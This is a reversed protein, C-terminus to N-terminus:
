LWQHLFTMMLATHTITLYKRGDTVSKRHKDILSHPAKAKVSLVIYILMKPEM